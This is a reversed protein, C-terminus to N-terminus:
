QGKRIAIEDKEDFDRNECGGAFKARADKLADVQANFAPTSANYATVRQDHAQADANYANVAEASTRDLAALREALATGNQTIATKEKDLAAQDAVIREGLQRVRDQTALCDRLEARTLLPRNSKGKGFSGARAPEAAAAGLHILGLVIVFSGTAFHLRMVKVALAQAVGGMM